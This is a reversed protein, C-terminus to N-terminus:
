IKEAKLINVEAELSEIREILLETETKPKPLLLEAAAKDEEIQRKELLITKETDNLKIRKGNVNKYYDEAYCTTSGLLIIILLLKKM